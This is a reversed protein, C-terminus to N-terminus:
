RKCSYMMVLFFLAKVLRVNTHMSIEKDKTVRHLGIMAAKGMAIRRSIESACGGDREIKAGLFIFSDVIKVKEDGIKVEELEKSTAMVKTNKINLRLGAKESEEKVRNLLMKYM